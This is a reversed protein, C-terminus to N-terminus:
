GFLARCVRWYENWLVRIRLWRLVRMHFSQSPQYVLWPRQLINFWLPPHNWPLVRRPIRTPMWLHFRNPFKILMARRQLVGRNRLPYRHNRLTRRELTFRTKLLSFIIQFIIPWDCSKHRLPLCKFIKTEQSSQTPNMSNSSNQTWNSDWFSSQITKSTNSRSLMKNFALNLVEYFWVIFMLFPEKTKFAPARIQTIRNDGM